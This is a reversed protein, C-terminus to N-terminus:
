FEAAPPPPSASLPLTGTRKPPGRPEVGAWAHDSAPVFAPARKLSPTHIPM